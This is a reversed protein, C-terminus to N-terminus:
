TASIALFATTMASRLRLCIQETLSVTATLDPTHSGCPTKTYVVSFWMLYMRGVAEPHTTADHRSHTQLTRTDHGSRTHTAAAVVANHARQIHGHIRRLAVARRQVTQVALALRQGDEDVRRTRAHRVDCRTAGRCCGADSLTGPKATEVSSRRERTPASYRNLSASAFLCYPLTIAAMRDDRSHPWATM